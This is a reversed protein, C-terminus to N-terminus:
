RAAALALRRTPAQKAAFLPRERRVVLRVVSGCRPCEFSLMEHPPEVPTIGTLSRKVHCKTCTSRAHM